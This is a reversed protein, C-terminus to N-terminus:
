PAVHVVDLCIGTEALLDLVYKRQSFLEKKHGSL